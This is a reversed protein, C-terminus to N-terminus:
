HEIAKALLALRLDVAERHGQDHGNPTGNFDGEWSEARHWSDSQAATHAADDSGAGPQTYTNM